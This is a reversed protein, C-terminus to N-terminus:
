TIKFSVCFIELIEKNIIEDACYETLEFFGNGIETEM